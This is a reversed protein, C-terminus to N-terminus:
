VKSVHQLLDLFGQIEAKGNLILQLFKKENHIVSILQQYLLMEDEPLQPTDFNTLLAPSPPRQLIHEDAIPQLDVCVPPCDMQLAEQTLQPNVDLTCPASNSTTDRGSVHVAGDVVPMVSRDIKSVQLGPRRHQSNPLVGCQGHISVIARAYAALEELTLENVDCQRLTDTRPLNFSEYAETFKRINERKASSDYIPPTISSPLLSAIFRFRAISNIQTYDM